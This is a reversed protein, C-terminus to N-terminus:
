KIKYTKGLDSISVKILEKLISLDIDDTKKIYICSGGSVKHKGLKKLLAPYKKVGSMIYITLNTKRSSFGTAMWDGEQSSRESKYHYEGFGITGNSWLKPKKRTVAKFIKLLTLADKRKAEDEIENIFESVDKTISKTKIEAM